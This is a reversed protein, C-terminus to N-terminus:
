TTAKEAKKEIYDILTGVSHLFNRGQDDMLEEGILRMEIGLEQHIRPELHVLLNVLGLSDMESGEGLLLTEEKAPIRHHAAADANIEEIVVYVLKRLRDRM